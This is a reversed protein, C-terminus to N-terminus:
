AVIYGRGSGYVFETMDGKIFMINGGTSLAKDQAATLMEESIDVGIVNHGRGALRYTIEGSGCGLDIITMTGEGLIKNYFEIFEDYDIEQFRDYILAFDNYM